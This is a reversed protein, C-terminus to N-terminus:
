NMECSDRNAVVLVPCDAHGITRQTVSGMLLRKIGTKGHTCMVIVTVGLEAALAIIEQHPQGHKVLAVADLGMVVAREKLENVISEAKMEIKRTAAQSFAASENSIHTKTVTLAAIRVSRQGAVELAVDNATACNPSGDMALLISEWKGDWKFTEPVVLVNRTTHGIVRATVTGMLEREFHSVGQRGMVILDCDDDEAIASIREFPEGQVLTTLIEVGEKAAIELAGALLKEAPGEITDKTNSGGTVESDEDFPSVVDLVKIWSNDQKALKAAVALANKASESGDYAVLIKKYKAM